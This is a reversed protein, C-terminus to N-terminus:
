LQINGCLVPNGDAGYSVQHKRSVQGHHTTTQKISTSLTIQVQMQLSRFFESHASIRSGSFKMEFVGSGVCISKVKFKWNEWESVCHMAEWVKYIGESLLCTGIKSAHHCLTIITVKCNGTLFSINRWRKTTGPVVLYFSFLKGLLVTHFVNMQEKVSCKDQFPTTDRPYFLIRWTYM